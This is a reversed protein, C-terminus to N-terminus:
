KAEWVTFAHSLVLLSSIVAAIVVMAEGVPAAACVKQEAFEGVTALKIAVPVARFQYAAAVPPVAKDM